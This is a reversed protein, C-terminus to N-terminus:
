AQLDSNELKELWSLLGQRNRLELRYPMFDKWERLVGPAFDSTTTVVAKSANSERALTGMIARVDNATVKNGKSFAKCQDLIRIAGFGTKEAIVDRGGDGSSPTLTVLFGAKEWSGAIFEEFARPSESFEYLLESNRKLQHFIARWPDTLAAILRGESVTKEIQLIEAPLILEHSFNGIAEDAVQAPVHGGSFGLGVGIGIGIM